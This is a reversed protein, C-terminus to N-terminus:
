SLNENKWKFTFNQWFYSNKVYNKFIFIMMNCKKCINEVTLYFMREWFENKEIPWCRNIVIIGGNIKNVWRVLGFDANTHPLWHIRFEWPRCMLSQCQWWHCNEHSVKSLSGSYGMHDGRDVAAGSHLGAPDPGSTWGRTSKTYRIHVLRAATFLWYILKKTM